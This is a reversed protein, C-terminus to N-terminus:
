ISGRKEYRAALSEQLRAHRFRYVAGSQRLVEREHADTLFSWVPWPLHGSLPLLFRALLLWRGWAHAGFGFALGIVPGAALYKPGALVGAVIGYAITVTLTQFIAYSRNAALLDSPRVVTEISTPTILGAGLGFALGLTLGLVLWDTYGGTPLDTLWGVLGVAFGGTLGGLVGLRIERLQARTGYGRARSSLASGLANAIAGAVPLAFWGWQRVAPWGLLGATLGGMLNIAIQTLAQRARGTIRLEMREPRPGESWGVLGGVLGLALACVVAGVPGFLLWGVPACMLAGLSGIVLVRRHRPVANGLRWWAFEGGHQHQALYGLWREADERRGRWKPKPRRANGPNPPPRDYVTPVFENLLHAEVADATAFRAPDLLEAPDRDPTDTYVARALGAMLPTSMAARVVASSRETPEDRLRALVPEWKGAAPGPATPPLYGDLDDLALDDLVIVAADTLAGAAAAADEYQGPQSTLLLPIDTANLERLARHRQEPVIEDLGDLVPLIWGDDFLAEALGSGGAIPADLSPVEFLLQALLWNRLGKKSPDWLGLRFVVPVPGTNGRAKLRDLVFHVALVSKGSGPRGLVALRGSPVREYVEGLGDLRGDLSGVPNGTVGEWATHWRVGLAFPDNLRRRWREANIAGTVFNALQAAAGRLEMQFPSIQEPAQHITMNPSQYVRGGTVTTNFVIQGVGTEPAPDPLNDPRNDDPRPVDDPPSAAETM